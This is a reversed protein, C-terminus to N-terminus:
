KKGRRINLMFGTFFLVLLFVQILSIIITFLGLHYSGTVSYGAKFNEGQKKMIKEVAYFPLSDISGYVIDKYESDFVFTERYESVIGNQESFRSYEVPSLQDGKDENLNRYPYTQVMYNWKYYDDLEPLERAGSSVTSSPLAIRSGKSGASVDLSFLSFIFVLFCLGVSVPFIIKERGNFKPIKWASRIMVPQFESKRAIMTKVYVFIVFVSASAALTLIFILGAALSTSFSSAVSLVLFAYFFLNKRLMGFAGRRGFVNCVIFSSVLLLFSSIASSLFPFCLTFTVSFIGSLAFLIKRKAFVVLLAYFVFVTLPFLFPYAGTSDVGSEIGQRKLESVCSALKAKYFVPVYYLRYNKSRDFFYNNRGSLYDLAEPNFGILSVEVSDPRANIPLYQGSLCAFEEVGSDKLIATVLSDDCEKQTYLVSFGKWLEGKPTQRFLLQLVLTLIVSFLGAVVFSKKM